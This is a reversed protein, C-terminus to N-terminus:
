NPLMTSKIEEAAGPHLLTHPHYLAHQAKMECALKNCLVNERAIHLSQSFDRLKAQIKVCAYFMKCQYDQRIRRCNGLVGDFLHFVGKWSAKGILKM